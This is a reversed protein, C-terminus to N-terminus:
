DSLLKSFSVVDETRSGWACLRVALWALAAPWARLCALWASGALSPMRALWGALGPLWGLWAVLWALCGALGPM